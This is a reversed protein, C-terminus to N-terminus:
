KPARRFPASVDIGLEDAIEHIKRLIDSQETKESQTASPRKRAVPKRPFPIIEASM